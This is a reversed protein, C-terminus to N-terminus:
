SESPNSSAKLARRILDDVAMSKIDARPEAQPVVSDATTGPEEAAALKLLADLLGADRMRDIPITGLMRRVSEDDPGTSAPAIESILYKALTEPNPYDFMLTAPLRQGTATALRNRLEIAALSDLGLETFGKDVDVSSPDSHRVAAVHDRVLDLVIRLQDEASRGALRRNLEEESSLPPETVVARTVRQPAAPILSRLRDPLGPRSRLGAPDVHLPVLVPEDRTLAEDFLSLGREVSLAPTGARRQGEIVEPDLTAGMGAGEWLHWALSVAPLGLHRRHEALADLYANAAAYNAQGANDLFSATSSFMVFAALDADRTLEHLHRAADAKPALVTALREPTLVHVPVDDLVGAAHVIGTLSGAGRIREILAALAERDSVDCAAVDVRAGAAALEDRLEAAGPADLGRRSTLVLDRVGHGAVLHRAVAAGLGGTGGTILVTGDGWSAIGPTTAPVPALRPVALVGGRVATEPADAAVAAALALRIAEPGDADIDVLLFRGPHESQAARILGWVPAQTVDADDGPRVAVAGRTVLVLRAGALRSDALLQQVASLVGTTGDAPVAHVLVTTGAPVDAVSGFAPLGCLDRGLVAWGDTAVPVGTAPRTEWTVRLLPGGTGLRAPDIARSVLGEITALPRGNEDAVRLASEEDGRVRSLRVRLGSGGTAHLTVGRWLFPLLTREDGGVLLDAHLAADLLAPHPGFGAPRGLAGPPSVEAYVDDGDRWAATLGQFAPGYGYGRQDLSEYLGTVDVPEAGAPPWATLDFDATTGTTTLTGEAHRTWEDGDRSHVTVPRRGEDDAAGVVVQVQAPLVLPAQLMLEEVTACGVEDGARIVMELLGTGPVLVTDNVRHDALWPQAQVSLRGTAVVGDGDPLVVIAGLLAQEAEPAADLWYRERQFAYTPLDVRRAGPFLATWDVPVGQVFARALGTLLEVAEDRDRRQLAIAGDAMPTLAADSGIELFTTADMAAVADAFLVTGRTHRLWYDVTALDDPTAAKGTVTSVIPIQAPSFTVTSLEQQFAALMPEMLPSHFAHSVKLRTNRRGLTELAQDVDEANGSIVVANPGNVAAIAVGLPEVEEPTAQVAAMAGGAPLAAMLKGRAVVLRVADPLSIMGAVHAVAFEGVSHGALVDPKVGWSKLLAVLAVQFAFIGIQANDTSDLTARDDGWWISKPDGPVLSAVEDFAAAFVPFAEYLRRGMGLRQVGQGSFLWGVQGASRAVGTVLGPAEDGRVLAALAAPDFAVARNELAARGSALSYAVDPSHDLDALRAAQARLASEGRGSVVLPVPVGSPWVPGSAPETVAPAQEVIVHANTGSLGFSSVGARRPGATEPWPRAGTLLQVAGASWDVNSSAQEAHLSKPMIGHRVAMVAKIVGSVGSAAQAHGINSKISGLWLPRDAPRSQGYTALLAQAEIPDGLTTGTGHGEVLDVDAVSLGSAALAQRIVRQQSPGNPATLGNSAGDQNIASGRLVALVEHGNRRADSLREILLLGIGEAWGTGDAADSFAKCRGDAALGRQQSFDVFIDPNPMVTVGGAVAMTIEGSRLAQCATHLAVLSSSCATDVTVAPGELGLAYAVRGSAISGASGNGLYASLDDPAQGARAGYEHYMVGVYVGTRSGRMSTPAIGADEFVEWAGELLLRQQPDMALAERPMIGFFDPDFDAADHLFGGTRVYTKGPRGPEAHYIGDTDWGRDVPFGTVADTESMVLRWLDEASRVGGPFRCSIGVIAIPEDARVVLTQDTPPAATVSDAFRTMLHDAMTRPSPYDFVLTPTLKLGVQGTLANRLEVAALSDFGMEKFARDPEIVEPGAHGLVAAVQTRVIELLARSREPAPLAALRDFPGPGDLTRAAAARRAPAPLFGRLHAPVDGTRNRLAVHDIHLPVVVPEARAFSADLLALGEAVTLAPLGLRRMRALDSETLPGGLGTDVEWMGYALATAPLGQEHRHVALADLFTNAAAYNAQGAALVTGGASSFLVFASLVLGSTLEHLHWAGDVKPALVRRLRAADLSAILGDDIVGAAHVVASLEPGIEGILREAAARDAIDCALVRIRAGLGTLEASLEAAGPAANGRRSTLVLDRVGHATVLHRAVLAGLGGTGGTVLVTGGGFGSAESGAGGGSGSAESGASGGSGSTGSGAGGGAPESGAGASFGTTEPDTDTVPELRPVLLRGARIAAEPEGTAVVPRPDTGDVDVDVDILFIRGPHEAQAARVLGWVPAVRVDVVDGSAADGKAADGKAADGKAADGKTADASTADGKTADANTADGKTADANTTTVAGRTMVALRSGAFRDDGLWHQILNLTSATVDAVAAPVDDGVATLSVAVVDPVTTLEDLTTVAAWSGAEAPEGLPRSRWGLHLLSHNGARALQQETVPRSVLSGVTAVPRGAADAVWLASLEDGRVRLLRVRLSGAGAAHLTVDGWVFPLLTSADDGALLDAHMAADLLAPHLGFDVARGQLAEPATVEAFVEDGRRWAATMAQFAPGYGYGRLRLLDYAGSIDIPEAGAPPWVSFDFDATTTAGRVTGTAHRTWGEVGDARSHVSVPRLGDTGAGVVVQVQLGGQEPLILPAQLTLEDVTGCGVEDGARIVMELLGTGPVLIRGNVRHDALWPQAQASLLGTAIAGGDDPLRVMAGFMPHEAKQLGVSRLDGAGVAADLWYRQRQFAYTPLDVRPAGAPTPGAASLLGAWDVSVGQVYAQGLGTLLETVEDRDRRQLAITGDAMPTLAADSGIELLVGADMAAVADAFLVTGRTHRLWYDVTALDDPTAAKGTVTSVVPIQAPSFTVTSLEQEFAALMPDMLSSHFAHSVRLRTNRRGLAEVVRDVDEASGSIVVSDPGNVAAVAIGFPEVEAATAQVAAMSGGAPLAAMLKGRAVVLRVADPLSIMGAVHAVAFEGVSHGALVDPKIGWSKLLAVLAVQFAFIGIQANDTSDLTARDEGWWIGKPDGPVLSAVEDFAAAFVPFAEYLGRGMGLRQVGQGSFLWGVRGATAVPADSEIVARLRAALAERDGAVVVARAPFVSRSTLLARGVAPLEDDSWSGLRELLSRAQGALAAPSKAHLVWPVLGSGTVAPGTVAPGTVAPAAVAPAAVTPATVAPEAEVPPAQELIVHANTGSIGFSSVGARRPRGDEPWAVADALLRVAGASWDVEPSPEDAHLTPPLVGHRMAMVMKIVGAVGAAAQAHGINSKISGLWLPRDAPRSQGYASLLAQAEIPDGLTTGTGHGEVVDIEAPTLGAGALAQRIVREQAPGNPATLGNSAGDQNVASGRVVGLVPHGHRRADSLRELLLMGAGEGWGTGDAGAGFSKCRGDGALGRQRNMDVFTDPTSMVTAGGVLAMSCEGTRLAQIAWHLAVLSSSCATDVTVAPGELGLTYAVRGSAVSALSGNGLYGAIDDSVEGLRTGWDHYMIGAFVGTATGRLSQPDIGAREIAEWSTELLLRQQPDMAQAERPSIGFFDADFEAADHLFGGERTSTKGPVGPEPDYLAAVDWGRDAPFASVADVGDAVLRWLEEPTTVGGPYRCAMSVIAIPDGDDSVTRVVPVAVAPASAVVLRGGIHAALARATPYDFVLTAPLRLGAVTNLRNRLEVASLSDFGIESFARDPDIAGGSDHRLVGAVEARVLDLLTEDREEPSLRGLRAALSDDVTAPAAATAARRRAPPVLESLVPPVGDARRGLAVTDVRVPVVAPRGGAVAADLLALSEGATLPVLGLGAIREIALRDLGAGMGRDGTWLGWALSTAPLGQEHRHVALADLFANAAAYNAQGANDLFAATSSFLVFASLGLDRTFEHLHWAGDVKPALVRRLRDPTLSEVL